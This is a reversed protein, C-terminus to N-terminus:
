INCYCCEEIALWIISVIMKVHSTGETVSSCHSNLPQKKQQLFRPRSPDCHRPPAHPASLQLIAHQHPPGQHDGKYVLSPQSAQGHRRESNGGDLKAEGGVQAHRGSVSTCGSEARQCIESKATRPM